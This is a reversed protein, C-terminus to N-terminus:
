VSVVFASTTLGVVVGAPKLRVFWGLGSVGCLFLGVYCCFLWVPAVSCACIGPFLGMGFGLGRAAYVGLLCFGCCRLLLVLVVFVLLWIGGSM